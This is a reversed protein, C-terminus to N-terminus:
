PISTLSPSPASVPAAGTSKLRLFPKTSDTPKELHAELLYQTDPASPPPFTADIAGAGNTIYGYYEPFRPPLPIASLYSGSKLISLFGTTTPNIAPGMPTEDTSSTRSWYHPSQASPFVGGFDIGYQELGTRVQNLDNRRSADRARGRASGLSNLVFSALIGIIAIVVLLEVLTFGRRNM